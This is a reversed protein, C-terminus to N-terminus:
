RYHRRLGQLATLLRLLPPGSEEGIPSLILTSHRVRIVVDGDSLDDLTLERFGAQIGGDGEEVRLARFRGM